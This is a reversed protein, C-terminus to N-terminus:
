RIFRTHSTLQSASRASLSISGNEYHQFIIGQYLNYCFIALMKLCFTFNVNNSCELIYKFDELGNWRWSFNVKDTKETLGPILDKLLSCANKIRYRRKREKENHTERGAM